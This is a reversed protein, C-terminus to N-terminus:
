SHRALREEIFDLRDQGFFMTGDLYMTPAGFAGRQYAEETNAKLKEKVEPDAAGAVVKDADIGAETLVERLEAEDGLNKQNVWAAKFLAERYTEENPDGEMVVAGRMAQLSNLPFNPNFNLPLKYRECFLPLDHQLMWKGKNPVTAPPRNGALNMLGGLFMPRYIIKAQYKEALERLKFYALYATPSTFDYFFEIEKM